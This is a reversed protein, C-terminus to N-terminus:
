KLRELLKAAEAKVDGFRAEWTTELVHDITRRAGEKDGAELQAKALSLWGTPETPRTRVVGSWAVVALPWKGNTERIEALARYGDPDSPMAEVLSTRAREADDAAGAKSFRGAVDAYAPLNKPAVRLSFLLADLAAKADGVADLARVLLGHTEGDAPDLDRALRLQAVARDNAGRDLYVAGLTKRLTPADVGSTAVEADHRAVWADLDKAKAM